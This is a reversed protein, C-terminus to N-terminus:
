RSSHTAKEKKPVGGNAPDLIPAVPSCHAPSKSRAPIPRSCRAALACAVDGVTATLFAAPERHEM